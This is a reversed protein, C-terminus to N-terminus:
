RHAAKHNGMSACRLSCFRQKTKSWTYFFDKGCRECQKPKKRRHARATAWIKDAREKSMRELNKESNPKHVGKHHHSMHAARTMVVLNEPRNDDRIGNIHHVIEVKSNIPRGLKQTMVYVHERVYGAKNANPHDPIRLLRYGQSHMVGGRWRGNDEGYRPGGSPM